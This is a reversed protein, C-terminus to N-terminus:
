KESWLYIETGRPDRVTFGSHGRHHEIVPTAPTLAGIREHAATLADLSAYEIAARAGNTPVAPAAPHEVEIRAAPGVTFVSGREGDVSWSDVEALGLADRYFARAPDYADVEM